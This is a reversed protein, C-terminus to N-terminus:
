PHLYCTRALCVILNDQLEVILCDSSSLQVSVRSINTDFGLGHVTIRQYISPMNNTINIEILDTNPEIYPKIQVALEETSTVTVTMKTQESNSSNNSLEPLQQQALSSTDVTGLNVTVSAVYPGSTMRPPLTCLIDERTANIVQCTVSDSDAFLAPQLRFTVNLLEPSPWFGVGSITVPIASASTTM